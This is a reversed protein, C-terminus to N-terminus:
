TTSRQFVKRLLVWCRSKFVTWSSLQSSPHTTVYEGNECTKKQILYKYYLTISDSEGNLVRNLAKGWPWFCFGYRTKMGPFKQGAIMVTGWEAGHNKRYLEGIYSGYANTFSMVQEETPQPLTSLYSERMKSLAMEVKTISDESWDLHIDFQQLAFKIAENAYATATKQVDENATFSHESTM